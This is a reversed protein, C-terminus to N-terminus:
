VLARAGDVRLSPPFTGWRFWGQLCVRCKVRDQYLSHM